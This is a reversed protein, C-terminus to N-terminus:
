VKKGVFFGFVVLFLVFLPPSLEIVRMLQHIFFNETKNSPTADNCKIITHNENMEIDEDYLWGNKQLPEEEVMM